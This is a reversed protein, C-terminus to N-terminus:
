QMTQLVTNYKVVIYRSGITIYQSCVGTAHTISNEAQDIVDISHCFDQCYLPVVQLYDLLM